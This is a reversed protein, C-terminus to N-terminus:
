LASGYTQEFYERILSIIEQASIGPPLQFVNRIDTRGGPAQPAAVTMGGDAMMQFGPMRRITEALLAISRASGDLPIFAEPVDGRDGVVRWSSPPVMQAVPDMGRLGGQAMFEVIAGNAFTGGGKRSRNSDGGSSTPFADAITSAAKIADLAARLATIKAWAADTDVDVETTVIGPLEAYKEVLRAAEEKTLGAQVAQDYLATTADSIRSRMADTSEGAALAADYEERLARAADRVQENVTGQESGIREINEALRLSADNLFADAVLPDAFERLRDRAEAIKDSVKDTSSDVDRFANAVDLLGDAADGQQMWRAVESFGQIIDALPGSVFVGFGDSMTEASDLAGAALDVFFQLLPGRNASVWDAFDGIPEALATALAGQIGAAAVDINRQAQEIKTQDNSALTDFMRQASGTVGDLQKVATTLDMAFLADGLDEAKTGFLEVAAANRVVPDETERLKDLVLQLGERASDGGRAIRATMDEADLGLRKYGNASAESADTARIQFEKLADAAVDSNRAGAALSQNLLGLMQPGDLGLKRLVSPYETFTDLLDEGRNVGNRAGAAIIDFADQASRAMDTRLLTTVATAVPRVDEELIDAIGALGQITAQADRTTADRDIIGFQVGIRATNMNAEISEGFVNTYAEGAARGIRGAQDPSLGTLAELRDSRGEVALGAEVAGSIAKGIAVGALVIGGAIPIAALASVLTQEVEGGVVQGVKEGAGRTASDLGQSLSRGGQTGADETERRFLSVFRKLASEAPTPDVDVEVQERAATLGSLHRELKQLAAEARKVDAGVDLGGLARVQLNELRAKTREIGKEARTIDADLQLKAAQSVLKKAAGEVRDMSALAGKADADVKFPNKEIREGTGKITREAKAVQDTNATVLVEVEAARLAM